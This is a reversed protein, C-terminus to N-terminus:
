GEEKAMGPLEQRKGARRDRASTRVEAFQPNQSVPGHECAPRDDDADAPSAVELGLGSPQPRAGNVAPAPDDHWPKDVGM